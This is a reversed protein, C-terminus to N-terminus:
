NLLVRKGKCCYFDKATPPTGSQLKVKQCIKSPCGESQCREPSVQGRGSYIGVGATACEPNTDVIANSVVAKKQECCYLTYEEQSVTIKTPTCIKSECGTNCGSQELYSGPLYKPDLGQCNFMSTGFVNSAVLFITLLVSASCSMIFFGFKVFNPQRFSQRVVTKCEFKGFSNRLCM